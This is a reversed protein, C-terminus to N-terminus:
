NIFEISLIRGSVVTSSRDMGGIALERGTFKVVMGSGVLRIIGEGYELVGGCGEVIAERNGHLEIHVGGALTSEPLELLKALTTKAGQERAKGPAPPKHGM